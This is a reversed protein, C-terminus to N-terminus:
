CNSQSRLVSRRPSCRPWRRAAPWVTLYTDQLVEAFLQEDACRRRLRVGLWPSTRRYFEDFAARDGKAVRRLLREEDDRSVGAAGTRVGSLREADAAPNEVVSHRGDGAVETRPGIMGAARPGPLGLAVKPSGFRTGFVGLPQAPASADPISTAVASHRMPRIDSM